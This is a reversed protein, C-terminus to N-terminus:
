WDKVSGGLGVRQANLHSTDEFACKLTFGGAIRGPSSKKGTRLAWVSSVLSSIYPKAFILRGAGLRWCCDAKNAARGLSWFDFPCGSAM